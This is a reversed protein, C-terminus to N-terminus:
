VTSNCPYVTVKRDLHRSTTCQNNRKDTIQAAFYRDAPIIHDINSEHFIILCQIFNHNDSIPYLLFRVQGSSDSGYLHFLHHSVTRQRIYRVSQLTGYRTQQYAIVSICRTFALRELYASGIRDTYLIVITRITTGNFRKDQDIVHLTVQIHDIRFINFRYCYQFISSRRSNITCTSGTANNQYSGFTRFPRRCELQVIIIVKSESIGDIQRFLSRQHLIQLGIRIGCAVLEPCHSRGAYGFPHSIQLM